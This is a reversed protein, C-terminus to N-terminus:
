GLFVLQSDSINCSINDFPVSGDVTHPTLLFTTNRHRYLAPVHPLVTVSFLSYQFYTILCDCQVQLFIVANAVGGVTDPVIMYM